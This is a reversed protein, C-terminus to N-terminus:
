FGRDSAENEFEALVQLLESILSRLFKRSNDRSLDLGFSCQEYPRGDYGPEDAYDGTKPTTVSVNLDDGDVEVTYDCDRFKRSVYDSM